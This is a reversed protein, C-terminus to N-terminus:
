DENAHLAKLIDERNKYKIYIKYYEQNEAIDDVTLKKRKILALFEKKTMFVKVPLDVPKGTPQVTKFWREKNNIDYLM